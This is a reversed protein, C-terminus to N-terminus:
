NLARWFIDQHRSICHFLGLIPIISEQNDAGSLEKFKKPPTNKRVQEDFPFYNVDIKCSFTFLVPGLWMNRGNSSLVIKTKLRDLAGDKEAAASHLLDLWANIKNLNLRDM